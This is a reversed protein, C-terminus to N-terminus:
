PSGDGGSASVAPACPVAEFTVNRSLSRCRGFGDNSAAVPRTVPSVTREAHVSASPAVGRRIEGDVGAAPSRLRAGPEGLPAEPLGRDDGHLDVHPIRRPDELPAGPSKKLGSPRRRTEPVGGASVASRAATRAASPLRQTTM